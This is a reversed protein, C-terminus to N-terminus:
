IYAIYDLQWKSHAYFNLKAFFETVHEFNISLLSHAPTPYLQSIAWTFVEGGIQRLVGLSRLPVWRDQSLALATLTSVVTGLGGAITWWPNQILLGIFIILGSLPNNVFVVQAAGRLVWDTFQLALPKDSLYLCLWWCWEPQAERSSWQNAHYGLCVPIHYGPCGGENLSHGAQTESHGPWWDETPTLKAMCVSVDHHSWSLATGAMPKTPLSAGPVNWLFNIPGLCPSPLSPFNKQTSSTHSLQPNYRLLMSLLRSFFLKGLFSKLRATFDANFSTNVHLIFM